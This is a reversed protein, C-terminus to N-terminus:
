GDAAKFVQVDGQLIGCEYVGVTKASRPKSIDVIQMGNYYSGAIAHRKRQLTAFEIDTGYNAPESEFQAAYPINKVFSLNPSGSGPEDQAVAAAPTILGAALLALGALFLRPM